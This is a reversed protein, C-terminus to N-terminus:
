YTEVSSSLGLEQLAMRTEEIRQSSIGGEPSVENSLTLKLGQAGAFKSLVKTYFNMWKQAPIQGTWKLAGPTAQPRPTPPQQSGPKIVDLVASSRVAGINATVAFSGEDQAATFVGEKDIAGGTAKWEVGAVAIDQSYQDVGRVVYAQKKGPQIQASSPSVILSVLVPPKEKLKKYNEATEHTVIYM